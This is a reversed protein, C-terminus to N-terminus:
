KEKKLADFDCVLVCVVTFAIFFGLTNSMEYFRGQFAQVILIFLFILLGYYKRFFKQILKFKEM